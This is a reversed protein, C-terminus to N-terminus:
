IYIFRCAILVLLILAIVLIYKDFFYLILAPISTIACVFSQFIFQKNIEWITHETILPSVLQYGTQYARALQEVITFLLVILAIKSTMKLVGQKKNQM